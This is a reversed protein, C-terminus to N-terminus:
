VGIKTLTESEKKISIHVRDGDSTHTNLKAKLSTVSEDEITFGLEEVARKAATLCQDLSAEKVTTLDGQVYAVTGASLAAAAITVCGTMTSSVFILLAAFIVTTKSIAGIYKNRIYM